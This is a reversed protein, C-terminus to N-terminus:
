LYGDETLEKIVEIYSDGTCYIEGDIYAVYHGREQVIDIKM